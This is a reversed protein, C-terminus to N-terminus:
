CASVAGVAGALIQGTATGYLRPCADVGRANILEAPIAYQPLLDPCVRQPWTPKCTGGDVGNRAIAFQQSM